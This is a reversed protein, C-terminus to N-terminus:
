QQQQRHPQAGAEGIGGQEVMWEPLAAGAAGSAALVQQQPGADVAEQEQTGCSKWALPEANCSSMDRFDGICYAFNGCCPNFDGICPACGPPAAVQPSMPPPLESRPQTPPPASLAARHMVAPGESTCGLLVDDPLASESGIRPWLVRQARNRRGGQQQQQQQQQQDEGLLLADLLANEAAQMCSSEGHQQFQEAVSQGYREMSCVEGGRQFGGRLFGDRLLGNERADLLPQDVGVGPCESRPRKLPSRLGAADSAAAVPFADHPFPFNTICAPEASFAATRSTPPPAHPAPPPAPPAPPPAPPAPPPAPPAPPPAPPAPLAPPPAHSAPPTALSLLNTPAPPRRANPAFFVMMCEDLSLGGLTVAGAGEGELRQQQQQQQQQQSFDQCLLPQCDRHFSFHHPRGIAQLHEQLFHQRFHDSRLFIYRNCCSKNSRKLQGSRGLEGWLKTGCQLAHRLLVADEQGSLAPPLVLTFHPMRTTLM